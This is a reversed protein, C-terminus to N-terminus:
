RTERTPTLVAHLAPAATLLRQRAQRVALIAGREARAAHWYAQEAETLLARAFTVADPEGGAPKPGAGIILGALRLERTVVLSRYSIVERSADRLALCAAGYASLTAKADETRTAPMDQEQEQLARREALLSRVVAQYAAPDTM